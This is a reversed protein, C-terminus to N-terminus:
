QLQPCSDGTGLRTVEQRPWDVSFACMRIDRGTGAFVVDYHGAIQATQDTVSCGLAGPVNGSKRALQCIAADTSARQLTLAPGALCGSDIIASADDSAITLGYALKVAVYIGIYSCVFRTNPPTYDAPGHDSKRSNAVSAVLLLNNTDLAFARWADADWRCGGSDWADRQAVVHDRQLAMRSLSIGGDRNTIVRYGNGTYPGTYDTGRIDREALVATSADTLRVYDYRRAGACQHSDDTVLGPVGAAVAVGSAPPTTGGASPDAPTAPVPPPAGVSIAFSTFALVRSGSYFGNRGERVEIDFEAVGARSSARYAFRCEGRQDSLCNSNRLVGDGAVKVATVDAGAIATGSEGTVKAVIETTSSPEVSGPARVSVADIAAPRPTPSPTPM